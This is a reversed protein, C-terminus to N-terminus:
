LINKIFKRHKITYINKEDNIQFYILFLFFFFLSWTTNVFCNTNQFLCRMNEHIKYFELDFWVYFYNCKLVDLNDYMVNKPIQIGLIIHIKNYWIGGLPNIIFLYIIM